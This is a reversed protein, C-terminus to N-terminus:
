TIHIQLGISFHLKSCPNIYHIWADSTIDFNQVVVM